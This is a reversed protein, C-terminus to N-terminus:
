HSLKKVKVTPMKPVLHRLKKYITKAILYDRYDRDDVPIIHWRIDSHSVVYSYCDMYRDWLKAEAFDKSNYKWQKEPDKIRQRLQRQQEKRSINLFFKLIHTDNDFQLLQEFNNIAQLRKKVRKKSIIRHVRQILVYEYYSRNFIHMMGKAPTLQHARWLFDHVNEEESPTKFSHVQMGAQSCNSFVNEIASDKGSADM